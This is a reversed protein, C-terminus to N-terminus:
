TNAIEPGFFAFAKRGFRTRSIFLSTITGNPLTNFLDSFSPHSNSNLISNRLKTIHNKRRVDLPSLGLKCLLPESHTLRPSSTIVRSAIKQITSLKQLETKSAM